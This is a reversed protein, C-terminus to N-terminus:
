KKEEAQKPLEVKSLGATVGGVYLIASGVISAVTLTRFWSGWTSRREQGGWQKHRRNLPYRGSFVPETRRPAIGKWSEAFPSGSRQKDMEPSSQKTQITSTQETSSPKAVETPSTRLVLLNKTVSVATGRNGLLRLHPLFKAPESLQTLAVTIPIPKDAASIPASLTTTTVENTSPDYALITYEADGVVSTTTENPQPITEFVADNASNRSPEIPGTQLPPSSSQSSIAQQPETSPLYDSIKGYHQEYIDRINEVLQTDNLREEPQPITQHKLQMEVDRNQQLTAEEARRKNTVLRQFEAKQQQRIEEARLMAEKRSDVQYHQLRTEEALLMAEKQKQIEDELLRTNSDFPKPEPSAKTEREGFLLPFVDEAPVPQPKVRERSRLKVQQTEIRKTEKELNEIIQKLGHRQLKLDRQLSGANLSAIARDLDRIEGLIREINSGRTDNDLQARPKSYTDFSRSIKRGVNSIPNNESLGQISSATGLVEKHTEVLNQHLKDFSKELNERAKTLPKSENAAFDRIKSIDIEDNAAGSDQSKSTQHEDVKPVMRNSIPDYELLSEDQIEVRRPFTSPTPQETEANSVTNSVFFPRTESTSTIPAASKEIEEGNSKSNANPSTSTKSDDASSRVEAKKVVENADKTSQSTKQVHAESDLWKNPVLGSRLRTRWGFLVEYPDNELRQLLMEQRRRRFEGRMRKVEEYNKQSSIFLERVDHENQTRAREKEREVRRQQAREMETRDCKQAMIAERHAAHAERLKHFRQELRAHHNAVDMRRKGFWSGCPRRQASSVAIVSVQHRLANNVLLLIHPDLTTSPLM